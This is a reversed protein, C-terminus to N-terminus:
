SIKGTKPAAVVNGNEALPVNTLWDNLEASLVTPFESAEGAVQAPLTAVEAALISIGGETSGLLLQKGGFTVVVLSRKPGISVAHEVRVATGYKAGIRQKKKLTLGVLVAVAGIGLAWGVMRTIPTASEPSHGAAPSAFAKAVVDNAAAKSETVPAAPATQAWVLPAASLSLALILRNM